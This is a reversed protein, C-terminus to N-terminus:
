TSNKKPIKSDLWNLLIAISTMIKLQMYAYNNLLPDKNNFYKKFFMTQKKNIKKNENNNTSTSKGNNPTVNQNSAPSNSNGNNGGSKEQPPVVNATMSEVSGMITPPEPQEPFANQFDQLFVDPLFEQMNKKSIVPAEAKQGTPIVLMFKWLVRLYQQLEDISTLKTIQETEKTTQCQGKLGQYFDLFLIFNKNIETLYEEFQTQNAPIEFSSSLNTKSVDFKGQISSVLKKLRSCVSAFNTINANPKGSTNPSTAKVNKTTNGTTNANPKDSTNGTTNANPKGTTNPNTAKVNKPNANGTTSGTTNPRNANKPTKQLANQAITEEYTPPPRNENEPPPSPQNKYSPNTPSQAVAQTASKATQAVANTAAKTVSKQFNTLPNFSAGGKKHIHKKIM